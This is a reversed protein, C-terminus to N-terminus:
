CPSGGFLDAQLPEPTHGAARLWSARWAVVQLASVEALETREHGPCYDTTIWLHRPRMNVHMAGARVACAECLPADCTHVKRWRIPVAEARVDRLSAPMDRRLREWGIVHDCLLTSTAGCFLCRATM